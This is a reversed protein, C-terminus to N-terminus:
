KEGKYLPLNLPPNLWLAPDEPLGARRIEFYVEDGTECKGIEDGASVTIGTKVTIKELFSTVTFFVESHDIIVTKGYGEFVGAFSINGGSVARVTDSSSLIKIGRNIIYTDLEPHSQRGFSSIIRGEVPWILSGKIKDFEKLKEKEAILDKKKGMLKELLLDLKEKNQEKQRLEARLSEERNKLKKLNEEYNQKLKKNASIKYSLEALATELNETIKKIKLAEERLKEGLNECNEIFNETKLLLDGVIYSRIRVAFSTDYDELFMAHCSIESAEKEFTKGANGTLFFHAKELKRNNTDIITALETLKENHSIYKSNMARIKKTLEQLKGSLYKIRSSTANKKNSLEDLEGSIKDIENKLNAFDNNSKQIDKEIKEMETELKSSAFLPECVQLVLAAVFFYLFARLHARRM